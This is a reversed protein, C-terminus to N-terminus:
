FGPPLEIGLDGTFNVDQPLPPANIQFEPSATQLGMRSAFQRMANPDFAQERTPLSATFARSEALFRRIEQGAESNELAARNSSRLQDFENFGGMVQAYIKGLDSDPAAQAAGPPLKALIVAKEIQTNLDAEQQQLREMVEPDQRGSQQVNRLMEQQAAQLAKQQPEFSARVRAEQDAEWDLRQTRQQTNEGADLQNQLNEIQATNNEIQQQQEASTSAAQAAAQEAAAQAAATEAAQAEARADALATDAKAADAAAKTAAQQNTVPPNSNPVIGNPDTAAKAALDDATKHAATAAATSSTVGANASVIRAQAAQNASNASSLRQAAASTDVTNPTVTNPTAAVTPTGGNFELHHSKYFADVLSAANDKVRNGLATESQQQASQMNTYEMFLEMKPPKPIQIGMGELGATLSTPFEGKALGELLAQSQNGMQLVSQFLGGMDGPTANVSPFQSVNFQPVFNPNTIPDM